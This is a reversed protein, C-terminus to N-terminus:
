RSLNKRNSREIRSILQTKGDTSANIRVCVCVCVFVCVCVCLEGAYCEECVCVTDCVCHTV